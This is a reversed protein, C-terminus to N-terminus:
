RGLSSGKQAEGQQYRHVNFRLKRGMGYAENTRVLLSKDRVQKLPYIPNESSVGFLFRNDNKKLLEMGKQSGEGFLHNRISIGKNSQSMEEFPGLVSFSHHNKSPNQTGAKRQYKRISEALKHVTSERPHQNYSSAECMMLIIKINVNPNQVKSFVNDYIFKAIADTNHFREKAENGKQEATKRIGRGYEHHGSLNLTFDHNMSRFDIARLEALTYRKSDAKDHQLGRYGINHSWNEATVKNNTSVINDYFRDRNRHRSVGQSDCSIFFVNNEQAM